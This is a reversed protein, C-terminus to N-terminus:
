SATVESATQALDSVANAAVTLLTVTMTVNVLLPLDRSLAAEWALQGIGPRGCIVEIPISAGFALNVSVGLLALLPGLVPLVVHAFLVRTESLGRARAALVHPSNRAEDLLNKSYRFVQPFLVFVLALVGSDGWLFFLLALLASPLCLFAGSAFTTMRDFAKSTKWTGLLAAGLGLAWAGVLGAALLGATAPLRDAILERIPQGFSDSSGLDGRLVGALHEFYFSVVGQPLSNEGRLSALSDESLRPDLERVDVGYGPSFRVLAAGALGGLVILLAAEGLRRLLGKSLQSLASAKV